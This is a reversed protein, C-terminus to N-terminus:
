VELVEFFQFLGIFTVFALHFALIYSIGIEQIKETNIPDNRPILSTKGKTQLESALLGFLGSTLSM